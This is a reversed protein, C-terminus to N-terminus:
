QPRRFIRTQYSVASLFVECIFYIHDFSVFKSVGKVIKQCVDRVEHTHKPLFFPSRKESCLRFLQLQFEMEFVLLMGPDILRFFLTDPCASDFFNISVITKKLINNEPM